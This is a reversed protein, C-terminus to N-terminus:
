GLDILCSPSMCYSRGRQPALGAGLSGRFSETSDGEKTPRRKQRDQCCGRRSTVAQKRGITKFTLTRQRDGVGKRTAQLSVGVTAKFGGVGRGRVPSISGTPNVCTKGRNLVHSCRPMNQRGDEHSCSGFHFLQKTQPVNPTKLVLQSSTVCSLM